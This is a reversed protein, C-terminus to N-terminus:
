RALRFCGTPSSIHLLYVLSEYYKRFSYQAVSNNFIVHVNAFILDNQLVRLLHLFLWFNRSMRSFSYGTLIQHVNTSKWSGEGLPFSCGQFPAMKFYWLALLNHLHPHNNGWSIMCAPLCPSHELHTSVLAEIFENNKGRTNWSSTGLPSLKLQNEFITCKESIIIFTDEKVKGLYTLLSFFPLSSDYRSVMNVVQLPLHNGSLKVLFYLLSFPFSSLLFPPFSPTLSYLPFILLFSFNERLQGCSNLHPLHLCPFENEM